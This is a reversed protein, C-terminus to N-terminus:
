NNKHSYSSGLKKLLGKLSRITCHCSIGWYEPKHKRHHYSGSWWCKGSRRRWQDCSGGSGSGFGHCWWRWSSIGGFCKGFERGIFIIQFVHFRDAFKGLSKCGSGGVSGEDGYFCWTQSIQFNSGSDNLQRLTWGFVPSRTECRILYPAAQFVGVDFSCHCAEYLNRTM